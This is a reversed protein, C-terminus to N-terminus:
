PNPGFRHGSSIVPGAPPETPDGAPVAHSDRSESLENSTSDRPSRSAGDHASDGVEVILRLRM